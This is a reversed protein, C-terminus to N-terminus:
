NMTLDLLSLAYCREGLIVVAGEFDASFLGLALLVWTGQQGKVLM